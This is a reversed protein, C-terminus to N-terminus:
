RVRGELTMQPINRNAIDITFGRTKKGSQGSDIVALNISAEVNYDPIIIESSIHNKNRNYKLSVTAEM